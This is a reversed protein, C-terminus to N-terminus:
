KQKTKRSVKKKENAQETSPGDESDEVANVDLGTSYKTVDLSDFVAELSNGKEVSTNTKNTEIEAKKEETNATVEGQEAQLDSNDAELLVSDMEINACDLHQEVEPDGSYSQNDKHENKSRRDVITVGKCIEIGGGGMRVGAVYGMEMLMKLREPTIKVRACKNSITEYLKGNDTVIVRVVAYMCSVVVSDSTYLKRYRGVASKVMLNKMNFGERDLEIEGNALMVLGNVQKLKVLKKVEGITTEQFERSIEDFLTFGVNRTVGLDLRNSVTKM